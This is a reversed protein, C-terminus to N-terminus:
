KERVLMRFAPVFRVRVRDAAARDIIIQVSPDSTFGVVCQGAEVCALDTSITPIHMRQAARTVSAMSGALDIPVYLADLGTINDLLEIPILRAHLRVRGTLLGDGIVAYVREAASRSVPVESSFTIGVTVPGTHGDGIFELTRGLVQADKPTFEISAATALIPTLVTFWFVLHLAGRALLATGARCTAYLDGMVYLAGMM